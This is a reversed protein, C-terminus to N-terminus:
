LMAPKQRTDFVVVGGAEIHAEYVGPQINWKKILGSPSIYPMMGSAGSDKSDRQVKFNEGSEYAAGFLGLNSGRSMIQVAQPNGLAEMVARPLYTYRAKSDSVIVVIRNSYKAFRGNKGGPKEVNWGSGNGNENANM